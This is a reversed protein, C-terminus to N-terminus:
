SCAALPLEMQQLIQNVEAFKDFVVQVKENLKISQKVLCKESDFIYIDHIELDYPARSIIILETVGNNTNLEVENGDKSACKILESISTGEYILLEAVERIPNM